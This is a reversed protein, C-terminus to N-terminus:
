RHALDEIGCGSKLVRHWDDIRWRLCYWRLSQEADEVSGIECTTLL